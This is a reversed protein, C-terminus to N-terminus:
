RENDSLLSELGGIGLGIVNCRVTTMWVYMALSFDVM